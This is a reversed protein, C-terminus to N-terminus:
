IHISITELSAAALTILSKLAEPFYWSLVIILAAILAVPLRTLMNSEGSAIGEPMKGFFIGTVHRFFGFFIMALFFVTCGVIYPYQSFGASLIMLKTSFTGFPPLGVIAIFGMFFFPATIPLASLVGTVHRMKTSSYKLFINGVAFFLLAKILAHYLMHILAAFIGICGFGFGLALLGAHEISRFLM